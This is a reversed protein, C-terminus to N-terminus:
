DKKIALSNKFEKLKGGFGAFYGKFYYRMTFIAIAAGIIAGFIVDSPYHVFLYLRSYSILLALFITIGKIIKSKTMFLVVFLFCFSIATHGSPFSPDIPKPVLLNIGNVLEFPRTRAVTPKIILNVIFFNFIMSLTLVKAMKKYEKTAFFVLTLLIWIIGGNGLSTFTIMTRDWFPNTLNNRIFNLIALDLKTM